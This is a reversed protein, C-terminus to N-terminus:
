CKKLNLYGTGAVNFTFETSEILNYRSDLKLLRVNVATIAAYFNLYNISVISISNRMCVM